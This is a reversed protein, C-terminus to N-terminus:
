KETQNSGNSSRCMGIHNVHLKIFECDFHIVNQGSTIKGKSGAYWGKEQLENVFFLFHELEGDCKIKFSQIYCLNEKKSLKKAECVRVRLQYREAVQVINSISLQTFEVSRLNSDAYCPLILSLIWLLLLVVM